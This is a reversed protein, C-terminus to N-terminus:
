LIQVSLIGASLGTSTVLLTHGNACRAHSTLLFVHVRTNMLTHNPFLTQKHLSISSIYGDRYLSPQESTLVRVALTMDRVHM